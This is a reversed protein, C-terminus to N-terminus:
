YSAITNGLVATCMEGATADFAGQWEFTAEIGGPGNVPLRPRPLYVANATFEFYTSASITHKFVLAASDGAIAQDLLTNDAFRATITGRLSAVTPDAGDIKGDSRITGVPDLNNSYTIEASIVSGLAVANREISGQFNNFRQLEYATSLTGTQTANYKDGGQCILGVTMQLPGSRQMTWSLTNVVGGLFVEYNPVAPMAKQISLSPLSAAGSNFTHVYPGTGTTVAAGFAGKLWIGLNEVDVPVVINGDATIADRSPAQPDRGFGLLENDILPQDVGLSTSAFPVRRFGSAPKVGYTSEFVAALTANAGQERAM